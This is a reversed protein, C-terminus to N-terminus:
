LYKKIVSSNKNQVFGMEYTILSSTNLYKSLELTRNNELCFDPLKNNFKTDNSGEETNFSLFLHILIIFIFLLKLSKM